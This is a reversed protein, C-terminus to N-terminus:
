LVPSALQRVVPSLIMTQPTKQSTKRGIVDGLTRMVQNTHYLRRCGPRTVLDCDFFQSINFSMHSTAVNAQAGYAKLFATKCYICSFRAMKSNHDM